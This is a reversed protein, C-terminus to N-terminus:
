LDRKWLVLLIKIKEKRDWKRLFETQNDRLFNYTPKQILEEYFIKVPDIVKKKKEVGFEEMAKSLFNM